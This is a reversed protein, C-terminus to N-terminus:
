KTEGYVCSALDVTTYIDYSNQISISKKTKETLDFSVMDYLIHPDDKKTFSFTIKKNVDINTKKMVDILEDSTDIYCTKTNKDINLLIDYDMKSSVKPLKQYQSTEELVTVKKLKFEKRKRNYVVLYDSMKEKLTKIPEVEKESVAIYNTGEEFSPGISLIEGTKQNFSVYQKVDVKVYKM